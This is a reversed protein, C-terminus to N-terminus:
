RAIGADPGAGSERPGTSSLDIRFIVNGTVEAVEIFWGRWATIERVGDSLVEQVSLRAQARAEEFDAVEIGEADLIRESGNSLHFYCQM